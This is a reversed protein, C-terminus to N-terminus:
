GRKSFKSRQSEAQFNSRMTNLLEEAAPDNFGKAALEMSTCAFKDSLPPLSHESKRKRVLHWLKCTAEIRSDVSSETDGVQQVYRNFQEDIGSHIVDIRNTSASYQNLISTVPCKVETKDEREM